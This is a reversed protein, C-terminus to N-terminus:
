VAETTPNPKQPVTELGGTKQKKNKQKKKIRVELGQKPVVARHGM